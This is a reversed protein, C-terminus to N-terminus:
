PATQYSNKVRPHQSNVKLEQDVHAAPAPEAVPSAPIGVMEKMEESSSSRILMFALYEDPNLGDRIRNIQEPYALRSFLMKKIKSRPVEARGYGVKKNSSWYRVVEIGENNLGHGLYVVSHGFEKFGIQDNWFIKLFDGPQAQEVSTFNPGLHFPSCGPPVRATRIGDVGSVLEM